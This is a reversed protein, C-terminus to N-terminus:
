YAGELPELAERLFGERDNRRSRSFAHLILESDATGQFISGEATLGARLAGGNSINGKNCDVVIPQANQGGGGGATAYRVHGIGMRSSHQEQLYGGLVPAVMGLD